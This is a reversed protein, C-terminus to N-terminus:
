RAFAPCIAHDAAKPTSRFAGLMLFDPTTQGLTAPNLAHADSNKPTDVASQEVTGVRTAYDKGPRAISM